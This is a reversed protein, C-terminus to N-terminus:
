EYDISKKIEKITATATGVKSVVFGAASNAVLAAEKLSAGSALSLALAAIVTDGAGTVDYVEKARSSIHTINKNKEFLSMGKVGRTILINSKMNKLLNKGVLTIEDGNSEELGLMECAEKNNPTILTSEIYFNSHKPKPDVILPKKCRKCIKIIFDSLTKTIIGKAYDSIIISDFKKINKELYATIKKEDDKNIYEKSEFDVRILQQGKGIIRIKQITPKKPDIIIGKTNIKRKSLEKKLKINSEDKGLVGVIAVKAGLSAINNAVNSAGGPAYSEKKVDVVQVPAEPSIRKVDGWLYTDLMIDGIVLINKEKFKDLIRFLRDKM